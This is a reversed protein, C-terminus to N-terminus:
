RIKIAVICGIIAIVVRGFLVVMELSYMSHTSLCSSIQSIKINGLSMTLALIPAMAMTSTYSPDISKGGFVYWSIVHYCPHLFFFYFKLYPFYYSQQSLSLRHFFQLFKLLYFWLMKEVFKWSRSLFCLLADVSFLQHWGCKERNVSVAKHQCWCELFIIKKKLINVKLPAQPMSVWLLNEYWFYWLFDFNQFIFCFKLKKM